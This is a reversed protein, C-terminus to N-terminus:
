QKVSIVRILAALAEAEKVDRCCKVHTYKRFCDLKIVSLNGRGEGLRETERAPTEEVLARM